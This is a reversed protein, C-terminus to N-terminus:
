GFLQNATVRKRVYEALEVDVSAKLPRLDPSFFSITPDVKKVICEMQRQEVVSGLTFYVTPVTIIKIGAASFTEIPYTLARLKRLVNDLSLQGNVLYQSRTSPNRNGLDADLQLTFSITREGGAGFQYVPHSAGPVSHQGYVLGRTESVESPNFLFTLALGLGPGSSVITGKTVTPSLPM